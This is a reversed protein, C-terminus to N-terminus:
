KLFNFKPFHINAFIIYILTIDINDDQAYDFPLALGAIRYLRKAKNKKKSLVFPAETPREKASVLFYFCAL